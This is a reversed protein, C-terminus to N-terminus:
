PPTLMPDVEGVRSKVMVPEANGNRLEAQRSAAESAGSERWGSEEENGRLRAWHSEVAKADPGPLNPGDSGTGSERDSPKM